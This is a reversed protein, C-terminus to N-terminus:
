SQTLGTLVVDESIYHVVSLECSQFVIRTYIYERIHSIASIHMQNPFSHELFINFTGKWFPRAAVYVSSMCRRLTKTAGRYPFFFFFPTKLCQM